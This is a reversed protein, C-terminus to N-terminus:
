GHHAEKYQPQSLRARARLRDLEGVSRWGQAFLSQRTPHHSYLPIAELDATTTSPDALYAKLHARRGEKFCALYRPNKLEPIGFYGAAQIGQLAQRRKNILSPKSM